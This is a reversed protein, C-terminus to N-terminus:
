INNLAKDTARYYESLQFYQDTVEKHMNKLQQKKKKWYKSNCTIANGLHTNSTKVLFKM